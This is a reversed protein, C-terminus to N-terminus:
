ERTEVDKSSSRFDIRNVAPNGLPRVERRFNYADQLISKRKRNVEAKLGKMITPSKIQRLDTYGKDAAEELMLKYIVEDHHKVEFSGIGHLRADEKKMIAKKISRAQSRVIDKILDTPTRVDTHNLWDLFAQEEESRVDFDKLGDEINRIIVNLVYDLEM